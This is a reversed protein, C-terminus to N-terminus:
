FSPFIRTITPGIFIQQNTQNVIPRGAVADVFAIQGKGLFFNVITPKTLPDSNHRFDPLYVSYFFDPEVVLAAEKGSATASTFGFRPRGDQLLFNPLLQLNSGSSIQRAIAYRTSIRRLVPTDDGEFTFYAWARVVIYAKKPDYPPRNISPLPPFDPNDIPPEFYKTDPDKQPKDKKRNGEMAYFTIRIGQDTVTTKPHLNLIKFYDLFEPFTASALKIKLDDSGINDFCINYGFQVRLDSCGPVSTPPPTPIPTPTATPSPSPSPLPLTYKIVAKAIIGAPNQDVSTCTSCFGNVGEIRITNTGTTLLAAINCTSTGAWYFATCILQNNIFIKAFPDDSGAEITASTLTAGTPIFFSKSLTATGGNDLAATDWIWQAGPILTQNWGANGSVVVAVPEWTTDTVITLTTEPDAATRFPRSSPARHQQNASPPQATALPAPGTKPILQNAGTCSVLLSLTLLLSLLSLWGRRLKHSM